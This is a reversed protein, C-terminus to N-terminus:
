SITAGTAGLDTFVTTYWNTGDSVFEASDGIVSAGGVFTVTTAAFTAQNDADAGDSGRVLGALVATPAVITYDTPTPAVQVYFIFNLGLAVAPLTVAFGAAAGLLFVKGSDAAVLTRAATLVEYSAAGLAEQLMVETTSGSGALIAKIRNDDSDVYIPAVAASASGKVTKGRTLSRIGSM